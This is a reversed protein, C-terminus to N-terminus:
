KCDNGLLRKKSRGDATFRLREGANREFDVCSSVCLLREAFFNAGGGEDIDCTLDDDKVGTVAADAVGESSEGTLLNFITAM